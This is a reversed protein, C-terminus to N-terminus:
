GTGGEVSGSDCHILWHRGISVWYWWTGILIAGHQVLVVLYWGISGEVSGNGDHILWYWGISDGIDDHILRYCGISVRCWWTGDPIVKYLEDDQLASNLWSSLKERQSENALDRM